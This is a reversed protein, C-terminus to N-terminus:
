TFLDDPVRPPVDNIRKFEMVDHTRAYGKCIEIWQGNDYFALIIIKVEQYGIGFERKLKIEFETWNIEEKKELKNDYEEFIDHVSNLDNDDWDLSIVLNAIPFQRHDLAEQILSIHYKIKKIESELLSLKPSQNESDM